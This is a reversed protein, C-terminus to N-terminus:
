YQKQYYSVCRRAKKSTVLATHPPLVRAEAANTSYRSADPRRIPWAHMENLCNAQPALSYGADHRGNGGFGFFTATVLEASASRSNKDWIKRDKGTTSYNSTQRFNRTSNLLSGWNLVRWFSRLYLAEVAKIARENTAPVIGRTNTTSLNTGKNGGNIKLNSTSDWCGGCAGERAAARM